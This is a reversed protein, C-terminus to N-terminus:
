SKLIDALPRQGPDPIGRFTENPKAAGFPHRFQTSRTWLSLNVKAAATALSCEEGAIRDISIRGAFKRRMMPEHLLGDPTVQVFGSNSIQDGPLIRIVYIARFLGKADSSKL